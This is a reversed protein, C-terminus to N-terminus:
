AVTHCSCGCPASPLAGRHGVGRILV